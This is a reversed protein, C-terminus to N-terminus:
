DTALEGRRTWFLRAARVFPAQQQLEEPSGQRLRQEYEALWQQFFAVSAKTVRPRGHFEIYWPATMAARFHDEHLTVVRFTVWGSEKAHIPPIVGGAKAFEDLRASYHVKGNHMVELYDVPDRVSLSLEPQLVLVEREAGLFVHGPIEGGLKPCMLPGNTAVSKGEWASEWWQQSSSVAAVDLPQAADPGASSAAVYLRNYGVPTDGSDDGSGALPAIRLGAELMQWYIREGWRGLEKGDQSSPGQPGRGDRPKAVKRDLRLWDGLVFVGDVRESALWVPLQWAFPNEIAVRSGEVRDSLKLWQEPSWSEPTLEILADATSELAGAQKMAEQDMGYIVLGDRHIADHRIWLPDHGIPEDADRGPIPKAEVHGLSAAVHLDESAMRLPLSFNSPAVCCDGSTWGKQLLHIMRPLDVKHSDLSTKEIAFNGSIIRYEPGRILRFQYAAEPIALELQRDLVFGIGAPVAKRLPMMRGPSEARTLELRTITPEGSAEDRAVITLLGEAAPALASGFSLATLLGLLACRIPNMM